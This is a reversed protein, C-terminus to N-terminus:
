SQLLPSLTEGVTIQLQKAVWEAYVQPNNPGRPDASPAYGAYGGPVILGNQDREGAFFTLITLNPHNTLTRTILDELDAWGDSVKAYQAYGRSDKGIARTGADLDGPNNNTWPIAGITAFGEMHAIYKSFDALFSM